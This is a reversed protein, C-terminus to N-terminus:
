KYGKCLSKTTKGCRKFRFQVSSMSQGVSSLSFSLKDTKLRPKLFEQMSGYREQFQPVLGLWGAPYGCVCSGTVRNGRSVGLCSGSM